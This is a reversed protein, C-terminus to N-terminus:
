GHSTWQNPQPGHGRQPREETVSELLLAIGAATTRLPAEREVGGARARDAERPAGEGQDCSAGGRVLSASGGRRGRARPRPWRRLARREERPRDRRGRTEPARAPRGRRGLAPREERRAGVRSAGGRPRGRAIWSTM